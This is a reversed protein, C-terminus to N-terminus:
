QRARALLQPHAGRTSPLPDPHVASRSRTRPDDLRRGPIDRQQRRRVPAVQSCRDRAGGRARLHCARLPKRGVELARPHQVAADKSRRGIPGPQDRDLEVPGARDRMHCNDALPIEDRDARGVPARGRARELLDLRAPLQGILGALALQLRVQPGM